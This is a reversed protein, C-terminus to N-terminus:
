LEFTKPYKEEYFVKISNAELLSKHEEIMRQDGIKNYVKRIIIYQINRPFKRATKLYIPLDHQTNDGLLIFKCDPFLRFIKELNTLKHLEKEIFPHNLILTSLNRMQKLFLPGSPFKNFTLFRRILPYLNQESNSLYFVTAGANTFATIIAKMDEVARRKEVRTFMLTRFKLFPNRINSHLITDDIDTIVITKQEILRIDLSYLNNMISVREGNKLNIQSLNTQTKQYAVEITFFGSDDTSATIKEKDFYLEVVENSLSSTRYLALLKLFTTRWGYDEFSLETLSSWSIQGRLLTVKGNSIASYSILIPKKKRFM